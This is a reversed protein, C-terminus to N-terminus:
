NLAIDSLAIMHCISSNFTSVIKYEIAFYDLQKENPIVPIAIPVDLKECKVKPVICSTLYIPFIV